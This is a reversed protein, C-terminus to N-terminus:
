RIQVLIHNNRIEIWLNVNMWVKCNLISFTVFKCWFLNNRIKYLLQCEDMRNLNSNLFHRIQVSSHKNRIEICFIVNMWVKCILSQFPVFKCWFMTIGSKKAFSLMWGYTRIYVKFFHRIQVLVHNNRNLICFNVNM